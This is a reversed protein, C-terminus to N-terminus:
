KSAYVENKGFSLNPSQYAKGDMRFIVQECGEVNDLVSNAFCELIMKEMKESCKKIPKGQSSFSIIGKDASMTCETPELNKININEKVLSCIYTISNSDSEKKVSVPILNMTDSNISYITITEMESRKTSVAASTGSQTNTNTGKQCATLVLSLVFFLTLM